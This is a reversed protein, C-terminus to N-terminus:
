ELLVNCGLFSCRSCCRGFAQADFGNASFSRYTRTRELFAIIMLRLVFKKVGYRQCQCRQGRYDNRVDASELSSRKKNNLTRVSRAPGNSLWRKCLCCTCRRTCHPQSWLFALVHPRFDVSIVWVSRVANNQTTVPRAFNASMRCNIRCKIVLDNLLVLLWKNATTTVFTAFTEDRQPVANGSHRTFLPFNQSPNTDNQINGSCAM